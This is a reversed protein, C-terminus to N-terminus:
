LVRSYTKGPQSMTGNVLNIFFFTGAHANTNSQTYILSGKFKQLYYNFTSMSILKQYFLAPRTIMINMNMINYIMEYVKTFKELNTHRTLPGPVPKCAPAELFCKSWRPSCQYSPSWRRDDSKASLFQFRTSSSTVCVCLSRQIVNVEHVGRVKYCLWPQISYHNFFESHIMCVSACVFVMKLFFTPLGVITM